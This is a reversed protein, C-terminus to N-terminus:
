YHLLLLPHLLVRLDGKPLNKIVKRIFHHHRLTMMMETILIQTKIKIKIHIITIRKHSINYQVKEEENNHSLSNNEYNNYKDM